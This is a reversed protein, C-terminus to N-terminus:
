GKEWNGRTFDPFKISSCGKAISMESLPGPASWAAADYADMDPPLGEKMCQMLRYNMLFDMGGHGGRKRALEGVNKWLPDEYKEKQGELNTWEEGGPQGELYLRPPYDTFTGKTGAIMNIRSYPRPTVVDHQLMLTRGQVTRLLSTNMDGCLYKEKRKPNDAPTHSDRYETLSAERSSMSVLLDFRDGNHIDMYWAVPGLGHTPYLNANRKIHPFRRWLGEGGDELLLGRLDHIYAAEGHTITGFLGARVMNRILMESWGYCCNELMTCHKRTKESTNVLKWCDDLTTAAPVEVAVHKGREMAEVAMPVHWDWPTAIYIIDLDDRECLKKYITEAGGYVEPRKQGAKEVRGAANEAREKVLDCVANVQVNDISLLDGFLSSGRGGLGIFGVRVTALKEYPVRRMTKAQAPTTPDALAATAAAIGTGVGAATQILERRTLNKMTIIRLYTYILATNVGHVRWPSITSSTM